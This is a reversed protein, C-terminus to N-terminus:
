CSCGDLCMALWSHSLLRVCTCCHSQRHYHSPVCIFIYCSLWLSSVDEFYLRQSKASRVPKINTKHLYFHIRISSIVSCIECQFSDFIGHYTPEQWWLMAHGWTRSPSTAELIAPLQLYISYVAASLRFPTARVKFTPCTALLERSYFSVMNSVMWFYRPFPFVVYRPAKHDTSRV